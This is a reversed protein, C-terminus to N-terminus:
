SSLIGLVSVTLDEVLASDKSLEEKFPAKGQIKLDKFVFWSGNRDVISLDCAIDILEGLSDYGKGYLLDICGTRYPLGVKNKVVKFTVKHGVVVGDDDVVSGSKTKGSGQVEIRHTSYFRVANGGSTTRPDGKYPGTQVKERFQNIFILLTNTEGLIHVLKACSQSLLRAQIGVHADGFNGDLIAQPTLASISDVVCVGVEGSSVMSELIDLHKEASIPGDELIFKDPDVGYAIPLRPDLAREADIYLCSLGMKNAQAVVSMALTSKGSSEWGFVEVMRGRPFGGGLASDLSLSGTPIFSLNGNPKESLWSLVKGHKKEVARMAIDLVSNVSEKNNKSM